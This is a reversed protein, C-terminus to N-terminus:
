QFSELFLYNNITESRHFTLYCPFLAFVLTVDYIRYQKSLWSFMLIKFFIRDWSRDPTQHIKWGSNFGLFFLFHSSSFIPTFLDPPQLHFDSFNSRNEKNRKTCDEQKRERFLQRSPNWQRYQNRAGEIIVVETCTLAMRSTRKAYRQFISCFLGQM